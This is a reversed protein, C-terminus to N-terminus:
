SQKRQSFGGVRKCHQRPETQNTKKPQTPTIKAPRPDTHNKSTQTSDRNPDDDHAKHDCKESSELPSLNNPSPHQDTSPGLKRPGLIKQFLLLFAEISAQKSSASAPTAPTPIIKVRQTTSKTQQQEDHPPKKKNNDEYEKRLLESTTRFQALDSDSANEADQLLDSHSKEESQLLTENNEIDELSSALNDRWASPNNLNIALGSLNTAKKGINSATGYEQILEQIADRHIKGQKTNASIDSGCFCKKEKNLLDELAEISNKPFRSEQLKKIKKRGVQIHDELLAGILYDHM